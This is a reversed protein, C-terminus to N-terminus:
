QLYVLRIWSPWTGAWLVKAEDRDIRAEAVLMQLLDSPCRSQAAVASGSRGPSRVSGGPSKSRGRGGVQKANYGSAIRQELDGISVGAFGSYGCWSVAPLPM